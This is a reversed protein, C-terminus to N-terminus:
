PAARITWTRGGDRSRKVTGDVLAAYLDGGDAIFASAQLGLSGVRTWQAGGDRSLLVTGAPDALYLAKVRPWALLGALPQSLSVPNVSRGATRSQLLEQGTSALFHDPDAPDIALSLLPPLGHQTWTRGRNSSVMLRAGSGDYGFVRTGQSELVHFDADGELSIPQWSQGADSSRILGLNPPLREGPAPHGSGLFRGDDLVSFGMVDQRSRGYRVAKTTGQEVTFLGTHTAIFLRGGSLGLGHIHLLGPDPLSRASFTTSTPAAGGAQQDSGCASLTAAALAVTLASVLRAVGDAYTM